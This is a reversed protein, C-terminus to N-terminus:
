GDSHTGFALGRQWSAVSRAVENRFLELGTTWRCRPLRREQRRVSRWYRAGSSSRFEADYPYAQLCVTARKVIFRGVRGPTFCPKISHANLKLQNVYWSCIILRLEELLHEATLRMKADLTLLGRILATTAPSIRGDRCLSLIMVHADYHFSAFCVVSLVARCNCIKLSFLCFHCANSHNIIAVHLCVWLKNCPTELLENSTAM